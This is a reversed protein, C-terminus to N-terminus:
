RVGICSLARSQPAPLGSVCHDHCASTLESGPHDRPEVSVLVYPVGGSGSLSLGRWPLDGATIIHRWYDGSPMKVPTMDRRSPSQASQRRATKKTNALTDTAVPRRRGPRAPTWRPAATLRPREGRFRALYYRQKNVPVTGRNFIAQGPTPLAVPSVVGRQAGSGLSRILPTSREARGTAHSGSRLIGELLSPRHHGLDRQEM